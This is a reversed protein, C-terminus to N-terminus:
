LNKFYKNFNSGNLKEYYCYKNNICKLIKQALDFPDNVKAIEGLSNNIILKSIYPVCDSVVVKKKLYLSELVINPLGEASSSLVFLDSFYLYKYPNKKFGLFNINNSLNLDTVLSKLKFEEEGSGIIHLNIKNNKKLVIKLSEILINLRKRESLSGISVINIKSTDFPNHINHISQDIDETNLPNIMVDIIGKNVNYYNTIESKMENNQAIVRHAKRYFFKTLAYTIKPLILKQNSPFNPERIIIKTNKLFRGIILTVINTRNLTSFIIDPEIKKYQNFFSFFSNSVKSVKLDIISVNEPIKDVLDGDDNCLVLFIKFIKNDLQNIINLTVKESGGCELNPLYFIIKKIKINRRQYSILM